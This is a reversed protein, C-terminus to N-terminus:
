DLYYKKREESTLPRSAFQKETKDVLEQLTHCKWIKLSNDDSTSVITNDYPHVSISNVNESHGKLSVVCVFTSLDVVQIINSIEIWSNEIRGISKFFAKKRDPSIGVLEGFDTRKLVCKEDNWVQFLKYSASFLVSSDIGYSVYSVPSDVNLIAVTKFSKSNWIRITKDESASVFQKGDPSYSVSQVVGKHAKMAKLCKKKAFDWVRVYRDEGGSIFTNGQPSFSVSYIMGEHGEITNILHYTPLEWIYIYRDSSSSIMYKGDPSFIVSNVIADRMRIIKITEFSNADLIYINDLILIICKGDPSYVANTYNFKRGTTPIPSTHVEINPNLTIDILNFTNHSTVSIKKCDASLAVPSSLMLNFDIIPNLSGKKVYTSCIPQVPNNSVTIISNDSSFGATLFEYKKGISVTRVCQYNNADWISIEHRKEKFLFFRSDNSFVLKGNEWGSFLVSIKANIDGDEKLLPISYLRVYKLADWVSINEKSEALIVKGDPRFAVSRVASKGHKLVRICDGNKVDWVRVTGDSSGSVVRDANPSFCSCNVAHNHGKLTYLNRCTSLNWIKVLTDSSASVLLKGDKSYQVSNIFSVHGKLTAYVYGTNTELINITGNSDATVVYTGDPSFTTSIVGVADKLKAIRCYYAKKLATEAEVTKTKKIAELALLRALYSDGEECLSLAKESVFRSQLEYLRNRELLEKERLLEIKKVERQAKMKSLVPCFADHILEIREDSTENLLKKSSHILQNLDDEDIRNDIAYKKPVAVRRESMVLKDEIFERVLDRQKLDKTVDDYYKEFLDDKILEGKNDIYNKLSLKKQGKSLMDDYLMSCVISLTITSIAGDESTTSLQIIKKILEEREENTPLYEEGPITIVEEANKYDLPRLRYRCNRFSYLYCNDLCDELLYLDDERITIVFRFDPRNPIWQLNSILYDIQQLLIKTEDFRWRLLEEFQDFILLPCLEHEESKFRFCCLLECLFSDDTEDPFSDNIRSCQLDSEICELYDKIYYQISKEKDKQGLRLIIPLFREATLRPYIGANLLSTKGVGSRGYLTVINNERILRSFNFIDDSRGCFSFSTNGGKTIPYSQPGVWPNRNLEKRM